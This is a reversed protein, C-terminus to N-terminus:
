QVQLDSSFTLILGFFDEPKMGDAGTAEGFYSLLDRMSVEVSNSM